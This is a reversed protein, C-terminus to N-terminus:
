NRKLLFVYGENKVLTYKNNEQVYEFYKIIEDKSYDPYFSSDGWVPDLDAVLYDPILKFCRKSDPGWVSTNDVCNTLFILKERHAIQAGLNNTTAVSATKPIMNLVQRASETKGTDYFSKNLMKYIDTKVRIQSILTGLLLLIVPIIFKGKFFRRVCDISAAALIPALIANYHFGLIWWNGNTTMIFRGLFEEILMVWYAPSLLPLLGFAVQSFVVVDVKSRPTYLMKFLTSINLNPINQLYYYHGGFVHPILYLILILTCVIGGVM